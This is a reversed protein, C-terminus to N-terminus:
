SLNNEYPPFGKIRKHENELLKKERAELFKDKRGSIKESPL